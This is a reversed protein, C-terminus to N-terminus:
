RATWHHGRDRRHPDRGDPAPVAVRHIEGRDGRRHRLRMWRDRGGLEEAPQRTSLAQAQGMCSRRSVRSLRLDLIIAFVAITMYGGWRYIEDRPHAEVFGSPFIHTPPISAPTFLERIGILTGFFLSIYLVGLITTSLNAIPSGQNHFLERLSFAIVSVLLVIVLLPPRSAISLFFCLNVAFGAILGLPVLPRAGKTEALAYFEHLAVASAAAVFLFFYVGGVACLLLIVPIAVVGVAVRQGLNTM